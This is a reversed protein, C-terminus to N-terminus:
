LVTVTHLTLEAGLVMQTLNLAAVLATLAALGGVAAARLRPLSWACLSLLAFIGAVTLFNEGQAACLDLPTASYPAYMGYEASGYLSLFSATFGVLARVLLLGDAAAALPSFRERETM